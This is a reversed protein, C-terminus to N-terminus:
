MQPEQETTKQTPLTFGAEYYPQYKGFVEVNNDYVQNLLEIYKARNEKTTSDGYVSILTSVDVPTYSVFNDKQEQTLTATYWGGEYKEGEVRAGNIHRQMFGIDGYNFVSFTESEQENIDYNGLLVHLMEHLVIYRKYADSIEINQNIAIESSVIRSTNNGDKKREMIRGGVNEPLKTSYRIYIDSEQEANGTTVEFHYAPNITKFIQNIHDFSLQIQKVYNADFKDSVVVKIPGDHKPSFHTYLENKGLIHPNFSNNLYRSDGGYYDIYKDVNDVDYTYNSNNYNDLLIRNTTAYVAPPSLILSLIGVTKLAGKLTFKSKFKERREKKYEKEARNVSELYEKSPQKFIHKDIMKLRDKEKLM